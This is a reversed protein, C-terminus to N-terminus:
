LELQVIDVNTNSVSIQVQAARCVASFRGIKQVTFSISFIPLQNSELIVSCEDGRGAGQVRVDVCCRMARKIHVNYENSAPYCRKTVPSHKPTCGFVFISSLINNFASQSILLAATLSADVIFHSINYFHLNNAISM